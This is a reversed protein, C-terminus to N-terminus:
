EANRSRQEQGAAAAPALAFFLEHDGEALRIVRLWVAGRLVREEALQEGLLGVDLQHDAVRLLIVALLHRLHLGEDALFGVQQDHRGVLTRRQGGHHPLGHFRLDGHDAQLAVDQLRIVGRVHVAVVDGDAAQRPLEDHVM